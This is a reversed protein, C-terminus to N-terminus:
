KQLILTTWAAHNHWGVCRLGTIYAEAVSDAERRLIGGLVLNGHRRLRRTLDPAMRILTSSLINAAILGFTGSIASLPTTSFQITGRVRNVRANEVASELATMDTDIANVQAVGLKVMAIALIGSGTGVDLGHTIRRKECLREM